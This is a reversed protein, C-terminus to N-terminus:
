RTVPTAALCAALSECVYRVDDRTLGGWTPLHLGREVVHEAVPCSAGSAVYHPLIHNPYIIQRVEVGREKM